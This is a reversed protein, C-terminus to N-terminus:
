GTRPDIIHSYKKGNRVIFRKSDGSSAIAMNSLYVTEISEKDNDPNEIKVQWDKGRNKGFLFIDGGASIAGNSIGNIKFYDGIIQSSYGKGIAGLNIKMGSQTLYASKYKENLILQESGVLKKARLIEKKSPLEKSPNRFPWLDWVPGISIDFCGKTEHYLEKSLKLIKFTQEDVQVAKMGALHNINSIDSNMKWSSLKKELDKLKLIAQKFLRNASGLDTDLKVTFVSGMMNFSTVAMKNSDLYSSFLATEGEVVLAIEKKEEKPDLNTEQFFNVLLAILIFLILVQLKAKKDSM